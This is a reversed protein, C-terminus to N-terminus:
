LYSRMKLSSSKMKMKIGELPSKIDKNIRRWVRSDVAKDGKEKRRNVGSSSKQKFEEVEAGKLQQEHRGVQAAGEFEKM